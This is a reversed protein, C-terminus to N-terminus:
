YPRKGLTNGGPGFECAMSYGPTNFAKHPACMVLACGVSKSAAWALQTYHGCPKGTQCTNSAYDYSPEESWWLGAFVNV